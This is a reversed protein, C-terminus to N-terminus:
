RSQIYANLEDISTEFEFADNVMFYNGPDVTRGFAYKAYDLKSEEYTFLGMIEKVQSSSLCNTNLIQKAVQVKSDEFSKASVSTTAANFSSPDMGYACPATGAWTDTGGSTTTTTTTTTTSTGMDTGQLDMGTGSISINMDMGNDSVSVGMNISEGNGSVNTGMNVGNGSTTTQETVVTTTSFGGSVVSPAPGWMIVQQTEPSKPAQAVPVQSIFALKYEDNKGKKVSYTIEEGVSVYLTKDMAPLTPDDFIVKLKYQPANLAEIKVNTQPVENAKLGNLIVTFREGNETFLICNATQAQSLTFALATLSLLLIRKMSIIKTEFHLAFM